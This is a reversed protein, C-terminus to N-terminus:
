KFDKFLTLKSSVATRHGIGNISVGMRNKRKLRHQSCSVGTMVAVGFLSRVIRNVINVIQYGGEDHLSKPGHM